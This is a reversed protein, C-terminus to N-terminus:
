SVAGDALEAAVSENTGEETVVGGIQWTAGHDDSYIVHSHLQEGEAATVRTRHDCPIVLRGGTLQIGHCPGTAYWTWDPRKVDATIEVPEAWTLGDDESRTVWVTRTALGKRIAGEGGEAPNKCFPLWIRGSDRDLVPAPNGCTMGPETVVVQTESWTRGGDGSRRALLDIEGADGRGHKRGECFALVTWRATVVLAPIRYTHYGGEGGVWLDEHLLKGGATAAM